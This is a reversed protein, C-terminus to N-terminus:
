VSASRAVYQLRPVVDRMMPALLMSEFPQQWLKTLSGQRQQWSRGIFKTMHM